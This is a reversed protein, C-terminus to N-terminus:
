GRWKGEIAANICDPTKGFWIGISGNQGSRSNIIQSLPGSNTAVTRPGVAYLPSACVCAGPILLGGAGEIIDVIGM